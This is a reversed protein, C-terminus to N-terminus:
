TTPKHGLEGGENYFQISFRQKVGDGIGKEKASGHAQMKRVKANLPYQFPSQRGHLTLFM